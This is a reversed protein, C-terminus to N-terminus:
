LNYRGRQYIYQLNTDLSGVINTAHGIVFTSFSFPALLNVCSGSDTIFVFHQLIHGANVAQSNFAQLGVLDCTGYNKCTIAM